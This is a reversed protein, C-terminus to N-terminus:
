AEKGSDDVVEREPEGGAHAGAGDAAKIDGEREARDDHARECAPEEAEAALEAEGAPLPQKEDLAQGGYEETEHDELKQGVAEGFCCPKSRFLLGPERALEFCIAILRVQAVFCSDHLGQKRWFDPQNAVEEEAGQGRTVSIAEGSRGNQLGGGSPAYRIDSEQDRTDAQGASRDHQEVARM